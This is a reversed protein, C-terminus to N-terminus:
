GKGKSALMLNSQVGTEAYEWQDFAVHIPYGKFTMKFGYGIDKVCGEQLWEPTKTLHKEMRETRVLEPCFLMAGSAEVEGAHVIDYM